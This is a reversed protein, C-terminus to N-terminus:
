PGADQVGRLTIVARFTRSFGINMTVALKAGQKAAHRAIATCIEEINVFISIPNAHGKHRAVYCYACAMACGNSSSPAIFDASRGNPRLGLGKKVGLVLTQRKPRLFDAPNGERLQPIRSHSAVVIREATPFRALIERGRPYAEVAAEMYISSIDLLSPVVSNM